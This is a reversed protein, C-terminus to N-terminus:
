QPFKSFESIKFNQFNQFNYFNLTKQGFRDVEMLNFAIKECRFFSFNSIHIRSCFVIYDLYDPNVPINKPFCAIGMKSNLTTPIITVFLVLHIM